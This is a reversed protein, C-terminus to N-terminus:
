PDSGFVPPQSANMWWRIGIQIDSASFQDYSLWRWEEAATDIAIQMAEGLLEDSPEQM